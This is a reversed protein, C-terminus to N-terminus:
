RRAFINPAIWALATMPATIAIVVAIGYRAECAAHSRAVPCYSEVVNVIQLLTGTLIVVSMLCLWAIVRRWSHWSSGRLYSRVQLFAVTFSAVLALPFLIDSMPMSYTIAWAPMPTVLSLVLYDFLLVISASLAIWKGVKTASEIRVM